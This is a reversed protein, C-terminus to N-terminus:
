MEGKPRRHRTVSEGIHLRREVAGKRESDPSFMLGTKFRFEWPDELTVNKTVRSGLNPSLPDRKRSFALQALQYM